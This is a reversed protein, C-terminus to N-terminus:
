PNSTHELIELVSSAPKETRHAVYYFLTVMLLALMAAMGCEQLMDM